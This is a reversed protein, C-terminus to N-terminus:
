QYLSYVIQRIKNLLNESNSGAKVQALAKPLRQLMQKPTFIKLGKGSTKNKTKNKVESAILSYDEYFKIAEGRAKYLIEINYLANKQEKSRKRNNGKKIKGLNSKFM